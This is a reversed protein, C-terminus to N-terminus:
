ELSNNFHKIAENYDGMSHYTLGISKENIGLTEKKKRSDM